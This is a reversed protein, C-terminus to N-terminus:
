KVRGNVRPGTAVAIFDRMFEKRAIARFKKLKSLDLCRSAAYVLDEIEM